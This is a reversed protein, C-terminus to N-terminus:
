RSSSFSAEEEPQYVGSIPVSVRIRTGKGPATVIEVTGGIAEAREAAGALGFHGQRVLEVYRRPFHFGVGDDEVELVVQEAEIL